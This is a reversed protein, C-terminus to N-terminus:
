TRVIIFNEKEKYEDITPWELKGIMENFVNESIQSKRRAMNTSINDAEVYYYIWEVDYNSLLNKYGIRYEKKLNLNDIVIRKGEKAAKLVKENFVNTVENEKGKSLVAKEDKDCYGLEERISDRSIIVDAKGSRVIENAFTTKGSGPLGIMVYVTIHKKNKMDIYNKYEHVYDPFQIYRCSMHDIIKRLSEMKALDSGKGVEDEQISGLIDCKKLLMLVHMSPVERSIEAIKGLPDKSDFLQLALMHYKVIACVGERFECDEDWLIRRTMRESEIEHGYAHWRGDKGQHTTTAKGIDHFLASTLFVKSWYEDWVQLKCQEVAHKCVLKTHEWANGESHWKPNQECHKLKKFESIKEIEDWKYEFNDFDILRDIKM